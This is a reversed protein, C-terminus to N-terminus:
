TKLIDVHVIWSKMEASNSLVSDLSRNIYPFYFINGENEQNLNRLEFEKFEKEKRPPHHSTYEKQLTFITILVMGKNCVHDNYGCPSQHM